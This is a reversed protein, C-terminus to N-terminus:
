SRRPLKTTRQASYFRELKPSYIRCRTRITCCFRMSSAGEEVYEDVLLRRAGGADVRVRVLGRGM